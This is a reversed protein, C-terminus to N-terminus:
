WCRKLCSRSCVLLIYFLVFCFVVFLCLFFHPYQTGSEQKEDQDFCLLIFSSENKIAILSSAPSNAYIQDALM